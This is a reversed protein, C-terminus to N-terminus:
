ANEMQLRKEKDRSKETISIFEAVTITSFNVGCFEYYDNLVGSVFELINTPLTNCPNNQRNQVVERLYLIFENLTPFRNNQKVFNILHQYVSLYNKGMVNEARDWWPIGDPMSYPRLTKGCLVRVHKHNPESGYTWNKEIAPLLRTLNNFDIRTNYHCVFWLGYVEEKSLGMTDFCPGPSEGDVLIINGDVIIYKQWLTSIKPFIGGKNSKMWHLMDRYKILKQIETKNYNFQFLDCVSILHKICGLSHFFAFRDDFRPFKDLLFTSMLCHFFALPIPAKIAPTIAFNTLCINVDTNSCRQIVYDSLYPFVDILYEKGDDIAKKVILWLVILWMEPKGIMRRSEGFFLLALQSDTYEKHKTDFSIFGAYQKRSFPCIPVDNLSLCSKFAISRLLNNPDMENVLTLLSPHKNPDYRVDFPKKFPIIPLTDREFTIPCEFTSHEYQSVALENVDIEQVRPAINTIATKRQLVDLSMNTTNQLFVFIKSFYASIQKKTSTFDIRQNGNHFGVLKACNFGEYVCGDDKNCESEVCKMLNNQLKKLEIIVNSVDNSYTYIAVISSLLHDYEDIFLMYNNEYRQLNIVCSGSAIEEGDLIIKFSNSIKIFATAVSRDVPGDTHIFYINFLNIRLSKLNISEICRHIDFNDTQGDTIFTVNSNHVIHSICPYVCTNKYEQQNNNICKLPENVIICTYSWFYVRTFKGNKLITKVMNWYNVNGETSGSADIFLLNPFDGVGSNRMEANQQTKTLLSMTEKLPFSTYNYSV